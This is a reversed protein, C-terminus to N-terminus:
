QSIFIGMVANLMGNMVLIYWALMIIFLICLVSTYGVIASTTCRVKACNRCLGIKLVFSECHLKILSSTLLKLVTNLSMYILAIIMAILFIPSFANLITGLINSLPL